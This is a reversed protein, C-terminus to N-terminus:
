VRSIGSIRQPTRGSIEIYLNKTKVNEVVPSIRWSDILRLSDGHDLILNV